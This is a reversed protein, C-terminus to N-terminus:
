VGVPFVIRIKLGRDHLGTSTEITADHLEAIGAVLSLGIGSGRIPTERARYFREFIAQYEAPDVGPGDDLVELYVKGADNSVYGCRVIINGNEPTYRMANDLLNRLLIGIEDVNCKILCPHIDLFLSRKNQIASIEFEQVVHQVLESLDAQSRLPANIAANLRALDLLQESLRTSRRAVTLLKRLASNKDEINEARLAIEAQAQVASLPTRLEHAADGIFRREGEIAQDVQKLLHNFSRILPHLEKPLAEFPLPTLDLSHRHLMSAGLESVPKLSKRVVFWMIIGAIVLLFTALTLAHVAEERMDADVDSQLSAVHVSVRGTVDTAVFVRWQVDNVMTTAPGDAFSTQMPSDPAGPSKVVLRNQNLWVQFVLTDSETQSTKRLQLGPRARNDFNSDAPILMLLQTGIAQMKEDWTSARNQSIYTLVAALTGFWCLAIVCIIVLIMQANFSRVKM